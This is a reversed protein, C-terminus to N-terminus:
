ECKIATLLRVDNKTLTLGLLFDLLIVFLKDIYKFFFLLIISTCYHPLMCHLFTIFHDIGLEINWEKM